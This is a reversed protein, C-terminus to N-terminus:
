RDSWAPAPVGLARNLSWAAASLVVVGALLVALEDVTTLLGISV